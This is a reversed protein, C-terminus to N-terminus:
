SLKKHWDSNYFEELIKEAQAVNTRVEPDDMHEPLVDYIPQAEKYIGVGRIPVEALTDMQNNQYATAYDLLAVDPYGRMLGAYINEASDIEGRSEAEKLATKTEKAWEMLGDFGQSSDFTKIGGIKSTKSIRELGVFNDLYVMVIQKGDKEFQEKFYVISPLNNSKLYNNINELDEDLKERSYANELNIFFETHPKLGALCLIVNSHLLCKAFEPSVRNYLEQALNATEQGTLIEPLNKEQEPNEFNPM